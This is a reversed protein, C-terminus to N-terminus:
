MWLKKLLGFADVKFNDKCQKSVLGDGVWYWFVQEHHTVVIEQFWTTIECGIQIHVDFDL